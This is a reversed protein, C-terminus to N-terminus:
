TLGVCILTSVGGSRAAPVTCTTTVAFAAALAGAVKYACACDGDNKMKSPPWSTTATWASPENIPGAVSKGPWLVGAFAPSVIRIKALPKPAM